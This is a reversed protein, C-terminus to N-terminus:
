ASLPNEPKTNLPRHIALTKTFHLVHVRDLICNKYGCQQSLYQTKMKKLNGAVDDFRLSGSNTDETAYFRQTTQFSKKRSVLNRTPEM